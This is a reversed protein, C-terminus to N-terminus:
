HTQRPVLEGEFFFEIRGSEFRVVYRNDNELEYREVITGIEEPSAPSPVCPQVTDGIAFRPQKNSV